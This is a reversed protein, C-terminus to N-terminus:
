PRWWSKGAGDKFFRPYRFGKFASQVGSQLAFATATQGIATATQGICTSASRPSQAPATVHRSPLARVTLSLRLTALTGSVALPLSEVLSCRGGDNWCDGPVAVATPLTYRADWVRGAEHVSFTLNQIALLRKQVPICQQGIPWDVRNKNCYAWTGRGSSQASPCSSDVWCWDQDFGWSSGCSGACTCNGQDTITGFHHTKDSEVCRGYFCVTAYPNDRKLLNGTIDTEFNEFGVCLGADDTSDTRALSAALPSLFIDAGPLYHEVLMDFNICENFGTLEENDFFKLAVGLCPRLGVFFEQRSILDSLDPLKSAINTTHLQYDHDVKFGNERDWSVEFFTEDPFMHWSAGLFQDAFLASGLSPMKLQFDSEPVVRINLTNSNVEELWLPIAAGGSLLDAGERLSDPMVSTWDSSPDIGFLEEFNPRVEMVAEAEASVRFSAYEPLIGNTRLRVQSVVELNAYCNSCVMPGIPFKDRARGTTTNYNYSFDFRHLDKEWEWQGWLRRDEEPPEQARMWTFDIYLDRFVHFLSTSRTYVVTTANGAADSHTVELLLGRAADSEANTSKGEADCRLWPGATIIDGPRLPLRAGADLGPVSGDRWRVWLRRGDGAAGRFHSNMTECGVSEVSAEADLDVIQGATATAAFEYEFRHGATEVEYRKRAPKGGEAQLRRAKVQRFLGPEPFV